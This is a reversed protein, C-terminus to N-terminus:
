IKDMIQTINFFKTLYFEKIETKMDIYLLDNLQFDQNNLNSEIISKNSILPTIRLNSNKKQNGLKIPKGDILNFYKYKNFKSQITDIHERDLINSTIIKNVELIPIDISIYSNTTNQINNLESIFNSEDIKYNYFKQKENKNIKFIFDNLYKEIITKYDYFDVLIFDKIKSRDKEVIEDFNNQLKYDYLNDKVLYGTTEDELKPNNESYFLKSDNEVYHELAIKVKQQNFINIFEFLGVTELGKETLIFDDTLYKRSIAFSLQKEIISEKIQIINSIDKIKINSDIAKMCFITFEGLEKLIKHEIELDFVSFKFSIIM